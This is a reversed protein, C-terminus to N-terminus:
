RGFPPRSSLIRSYRELLTEHQQLLLRQQKCVYYYHNLESQVFKFQKLILEMEENLEELKSAYDVPAIYSQKVSTTSSVQAQFDPVSDPNELVFDSSNDDHSQDSILRRAEVSDDSSSINSM